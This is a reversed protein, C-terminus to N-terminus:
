QILRIEKPGVGIYEVVAGNTAVVEPLMSLDFYTVTMNEIRNSDVTVGNDPLPLPRANTSTLEEETILAGRYDVIPV